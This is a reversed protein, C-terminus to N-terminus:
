SPSQFAPIKSAGRQNKITNTYPITPKWARFPGIIPAFSFELYREQSTEPSFTYHESPSSILQILGSGGNALKTQHEVPYKTSLVIEDYLYAHKELGAQLKEGTKHALYEISLNKWGTKTAPDRPIIAM